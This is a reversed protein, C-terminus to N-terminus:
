RSIDSAGLIALAFELLPQPNPLVEDAFYALRAGFFKRVAAFQESLVDVVIAGVLLGYGIRRTVRVVSLVEESLDSRLERETLTEM